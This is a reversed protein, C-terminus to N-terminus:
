FSGRETYALRYVRVIDSDYDTQATGYLLGNRVRRPRLGDPIDVRDMAETQLDLIYWRGTALDDFYAEAGRGVELWLRRENEVIISRIGSWYEPGMTEPSRTILDGLGQEARRLDERTKHVAASIDDATLPDPRVGTWIQRVRRAGEVGITWITLEGTTGSATVVTSDNILAWAGGPEHFGRLASAARESRWWIAGADYQVLTDVEESDPRFVLISERSPEDFSETSWRAMALGLVHSHALSLQVAFSRGGLTPLPQTEVLSGSWSYLTNRGSQPDVVLIGSRDEYLGTPYVFEGPGGGPGGFAQVFRGGPEFLRVEAAMADLVAIQGEPGVAVDRVDGFVYEPDGLDTGIETILQFDAPSDTTDVAQSAAVGVDGALCLILLIASRWM